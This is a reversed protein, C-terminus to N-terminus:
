VVRLTHMRSYVRYVSNSTYHFYLNGWGNPFPEQSSKPDGRRERGLFGGFTRIYKEHVEERVDSEEGRSELCSAKYFSRDRVKRVCMYKDECIYSM